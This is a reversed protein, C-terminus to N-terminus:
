EIMPIEPAMLDPSPVGILVVTGALDRAFFAQKHHEPRGVAEVVVDARLGGTAERIAEVVDRDRANVM